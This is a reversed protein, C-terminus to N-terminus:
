SARLERVLREIVAAESIVDTALRVEHSTIPEGDELAKVLLARAIMTHAKSMRFAQLLASDLRQPDHSVAPTSNNM